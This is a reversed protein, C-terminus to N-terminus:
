GRHRQWKRGKNQPLHFHRVINEIVVIADDVLIGISFILAFLTIRNLTFGHLYFVLLTLALTSPIAIAVIISERWGLTLLILLSVGVVAILMHWLLENSKEEATLGYNRTVSVQVDAPIIRGKLTEVKKLVERAVSIANAGPRKAISM